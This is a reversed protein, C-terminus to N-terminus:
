ADLQAALRSIRRTWRSWGRALLRGEDEADRLAACCPLELVPLGLAREIHTGTIEGGPGSRNVVVSWSLAPHSELLGVSRQLGSPTPSCVLVARDIAGVAPLSGAPADIVARDFDGLDTGPGVVRFGGPVPVPLTTEHSEDLGLRARGGSSPDPDVFATSHGRAVLEAALHLAISTVGTGGGPSTVAISRCSGQTLEAIRAVLDGEGDWVLAGPLDAGGDCVIVDADLPATDHLRLSWGAPAAELARVLALRCSDDSGVIAVKLSVM